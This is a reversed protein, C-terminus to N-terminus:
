VEMMSRVALEAVQDKAVSAWDSAQSQTQEKVFSM